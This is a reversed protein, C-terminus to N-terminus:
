KKSGSEKPTFTHRTAFGYTRPNGADTSEGIWVEVCLRDALRQAAAYVEKLLLGESKWRSKVAVPVPRDYDGGDGKHPRSVNVSLGAPTRGELWEWTDEYDRHFDTVGFCEMIIGGADGLEKRLLFAIQRSDFM